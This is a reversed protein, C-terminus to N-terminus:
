CVGARVRAAKRPRARARARVRMERGGARERVTPLIEDAPATVRLKQIGARGGRQKGDEERERRCARCAHPMVPL